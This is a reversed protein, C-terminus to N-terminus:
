VYMYQINGFEDTATVSTDPIFQVVDDINKPTDADWYFTNDFPIPDDEWVLGAAIKDSESWIMWNRPHQVGNSDVWSRGAKIVTNNYKWPM